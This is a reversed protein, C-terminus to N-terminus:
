WTVGRPHLPGPGLIVPHTEVQVRGEKRYRGAPAREGGPSSTPFWPLFSHHLDLKGRRQSCTYLNKPPKQEGVDEQGSAGLRGFRDGCVTDGSCPTHTRGQSVQLWPARVPVRELGARVTSGVEQGARTHRAGLEHWSTEACKVAATETAVSGGRLHRPRSTGEKWIFLGLSQFVYWTALHCVQSRGRAKRVRRLQSSSQNQFTLRKCLVFLKGGTRQFGRGVSCGSGGGGRGWPHKSSNERQQPNRRSSDRPRQGVTGPERGRCWTGLPCGPAVSPLSGETLSFAIGRRPWVM